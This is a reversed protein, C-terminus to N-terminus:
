QYGPRTRSWTKSISRNCASGKSFSLTASRSAKPWFPWLLLCIWSQSDVCHTSIACCISFEQVKSQSLM